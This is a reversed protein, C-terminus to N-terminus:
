RRAACSRTAASRPRRADLRRLLAARVERAAPEAAAAGARPAVREAAAGAAPERAVAARGRRGQEAAARERPGLPEAPAREAPREPRGPGVRAPEVGAQERAGRAAPSAWRGVEPPVALARPVLAAMAQRAGM